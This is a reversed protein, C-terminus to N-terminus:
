AGCLELQICLGYKRASHDVYVCETTGQIVATERTSKRPLIQLRRQEALPLTYRPLTETGTDIVFQSLAREDDPRPLSHLRLELYLEYLESLLATIRRNHM